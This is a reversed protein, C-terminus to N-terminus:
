SFLKQWVSKQQENKLALRHKDIQRKAQRKIEEREARSKEEQNAIRHELAKLSKEWDGGGVSRDELLLTARNHGEQSRVLSEELHDIRAQFQDRERDREQRERDLENQVASFNPTLRKETKVTPESVPEMPLQADPNAREFKCLDSYVRSLESGDIQKNGQSDTASSLKGGKLHTRITTRSKGTIRAAESISFSTQTGTM